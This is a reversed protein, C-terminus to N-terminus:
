AQAADWAKRMKAAFTDYAKNDWSINHEDSWKARPNALYIISPLPKSPDKGAERFLEHDLRATGLIVNDGEHAIVIKHGDKVKRYSELTNFSWSNSIIAAAIRGIIPLSMAGVKERTAADFTTFTRDVALRMGPHMSAIEAAVAGGQSHGFTTMNDIGVKKQKLYEVGSLGDAILDKDIVSSSLLEPRDASNGVGRYNLTLINAGTAASLKRYHELQNEYADDKGVFCIIWKQEDAPKDKQAPNIMEFGDLPVGDVAGLITVQRYNQNCIVGAQKTLQPTKATLQTEVIVEKVIKLLAKANFFYDIKEKLQVLDSDKGNKLIHIFERIEKAENKSYEKKREGAEEILKGRLNTYFAKSQGPLEREVQASDAFNLNSADIKQRLRDREENILTKTISNRQDSQFLSRQNNLRELSISRGGLLHKDVIVEHIHLALLYIAGPVVTLTAVVMLAVQWNKWERREAHQQKFAEIPDKSKPILQLSESHDNIAGKNLNVSM